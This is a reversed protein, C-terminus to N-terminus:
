RPLKINEKIWSAYNGVKAYVGYSEAAACEGPRGWSVAGYVFYRFNSEDLFMLPGGSDGRCADRGGTQYGACFMNDTVTWGNPQYAERCATQNAIPVYAELLVDSRTGGRNSTIGWGTIVAPERPPPVAREVHEDFGFDNILVTESQPLCIPRVYDTFSIPTALRLLAIDADFDLVNYDPHRLIESVGRQQVHETPESRRHVGFTVNISRLPIAQGFTESYRLPNTVCHAATILWKENLLSGGCISNHIDHSPAHIDLYTMWPWSGEAVTRGGLIRSRPRTNPPFTSEGCIPECHPRTDSWLANTECFRVSSGVIEYYDDCSYVVANTYTFNDNTTTFHGNDIEEPRGCDVIQCYPQVGTWTGDQTCLRSESGVLYYGPNCTFRVYQKFTFNRGMMEGYVPAELPPCPQATVYYRARFGGFEGSTDSHFMVKMTNGPSQIVAPLNNVGSEGCYPGYVQNGSLVKVFDYPCLVDPHIEVDFDDFVLNIVFGKEVDITWDCESNKPYRGPHDPTELVGSLDNRVLNACEVTCIKRDTDLVYEPRCSCYFGGFINHCYHDCGGKNNLCEDIDEALYHANFGINRELNSFDSRFTVRLQNNPSRILTSGPFYSFEKGGCFRYLEEDNASIQVSDYECDESIELDFASFYLAARYGDPVEINWVAEENHPYEQPYNPSSFSGGLGTLTEESIVLTVFTAILLLSITLSVPRTSRDLCFAM